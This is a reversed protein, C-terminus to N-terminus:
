KELVFFYFINLNDFVIVLFKFLIKLKKFLLLNSLKKKILLIWVNLSLVLNM